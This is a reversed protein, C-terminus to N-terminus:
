SPGAQHGTAQRHRHPVRLVAGGPLPLLNEGFTDAEEGYTSSATRRREANVAKPSADPDTVASCSDASPGQPEPDNCVRSCRPTASSGTSRRPLRPWSAPRASRGAPNKTRRPLSSRAPEGSAAFPHVLVRHCPHQVRRREAPRTCSTAPSRTATVFTYPEEIEEDHGARCRSRLDPHPSATRSM